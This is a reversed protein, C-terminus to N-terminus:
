SMYLREMTNTLMIVKKSNIYYNIGKELETIHWKLKAIENNLKNDILALENSHEINLLSILELYVKYNYLTYTFPFSFTYLANVPYYPFSFFLFIVVGFFFTPYARTCWNTGGYITTAIFIHKCRLDASVNFM